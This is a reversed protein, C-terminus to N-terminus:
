RNPNSSSSPQSIFVPKGANTLIYYSYSSPLDRINHSPPRPSPHKPRTTHVVNNKLTKRLQDRLIQKSESEGLGLGRSMSDESDEDLEGQVLLAKGLPSDQGSDLELNFVSSASSGLGSTPGSNAGANGHYSHVRLNSLSPSQRLAPAVALKHKVPNIITSPLNPTASGSGSRTTSRSTSPSRSSM